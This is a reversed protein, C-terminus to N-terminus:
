EFYRWTVRRIIQGITQEHVGYREGIQPYTWGEARLQRIERVQAATLRTLNCDEGSVHREPHKRMGNKDGTASRGREKMDRSNDIATGLYLHDPKCCLPTDCKHLVWKGPPIPGNMLTYAVRHSLYKTIKGQTTVSWMGYGHGNKMGTWLWCNGTRDLKAWFRAIRGEPQLPMAEYRRLDLVGGARSGTTLVRCASAPYQVVSLPTHVQTAGDRALCSVGRRSLSMIACVPCSTFTFDPM